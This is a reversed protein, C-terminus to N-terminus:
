NGKPFKNIYNAKKVRSVEPFKLIQFNIDSEIGDDTSMHAFPNERLDRHSKFNNKSKFKKGKPSLYNPVLGDLNPETYRSSQMYKGGYNSNLISSNNTFSNGQNRLNEIKFKTKKQKDM